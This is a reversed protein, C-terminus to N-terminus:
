RETTVSTDQTAGQSAELAVQQAFDRSKNKAAGTMRNLSLETLNVVTTPHVTRWEPGLFVSEVKEGAEEVLTGNLQKAPDGDFNILMNAIIGDVRSLSERQDMTLANQIFDQKYNPQESVPDINNTDIIENINFGGLPLSPDGKGGSTRTELEAKQEFFDLASRNRREILTDYGLVAQIAREANKTRAANTAQPVNPAGTTAGVGLFRDEAERVVQSWQESTYTSPDEGFQGRIREGFNILNEQELLTSRQLDARERAQERRQSTAFDQAKARRETQKEQSINQERARTTRGAEARAEIKEAAERTLKGEKVLFSLHDRKFKDTADFEREQEALGRSFQSERQNTTVDFQRVAENFKKGEVAGEAAGAATKFVATATDPKRIVGQTKAM